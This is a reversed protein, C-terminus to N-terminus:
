TLFNVEYFDLFLTEVFSFFTSKVIITSIIPTTMRIVEESLVTFTITLVFRIFTSGTMAPM